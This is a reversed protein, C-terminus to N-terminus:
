WIVFLARVSERAKAPIQHVMVREEPGAPKLLGAMATADLLNLPATAAESAIAESESQRITVRATSALLNPWEPV